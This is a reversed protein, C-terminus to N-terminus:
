VKQTLKDLLSEVLAFHGCYNTGMKMEFNDKTYTLPLGTVGANLLQLDISPESQLRKAFSRVSSLDALDLQQVEL